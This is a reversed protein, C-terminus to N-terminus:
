QMCEDTSTIYTNGCLYGTHGNVEHWGIQRTIVTCPLVGLNANEFAQFYDVLLRANNINADMNHGALQVISRVDALLQREVTLEHWSGQSWYRLTLYHIDAHISRSHGVILVPRTVRGSDRATHGGGIRSIGDSNIQWGPPCRLGLPWDGKFIASILMDQESSNDAAHDARCIAAIIAKTKSVLSQLRLGRVGLARLRAQILDCAVEVSDRYGLAVVELAARLARRHLSLDSPSHQMAILAHLPEAYQEQGVALRADPLGILFDLLLLRDSDPLELLGDLSITVNEGALSLRHHLTEADLKASIIQPTLLAQEPGLRYSLGLPADALIESPTPQQEALRPSISSM